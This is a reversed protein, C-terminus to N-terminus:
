GRRTIQISQLDAAAQLGSRGTRHWGPLWGAGCFANMGIYGLNFVCPYLLFECCIHLRGLALRNCNANKAMKQLAEPRTDQAHKKTVSELFM